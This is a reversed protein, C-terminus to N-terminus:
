LLFLAAFTTRTEPNGKAQFLLFEQYELFLLTQLFQCGLPSQQKHNDTLSNSLPTKQSHIEVKDESLVFM